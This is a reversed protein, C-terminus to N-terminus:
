RVFFRGRFIHREINRLDLAGRIFQAPNNVLCFRRLMIFLDFLGYRTVPNAPLGEPTLRKSLTM